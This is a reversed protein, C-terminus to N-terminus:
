QKHQSWSFMAISILYCGQYVRAVRPLVWTGDALKSIEWDIKQSRYDRGSPVERLSIMERPQWRGATMQELPRLAFLRKRAQLPCLRGNHGSSSRGSICRNRMTCAPEEASTRCCEPFWCRPSSQCGMEGLLQTTTHLEPAGVGFDNRDDGAVDGGVSAMANDSVEHAAAWVCARGACVFADGRSGRGEEARHLLGALQQCQGRTM